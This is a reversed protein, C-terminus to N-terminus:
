SDCTAATVTRVGVELFAKLENEGGAVELCGWLGWV